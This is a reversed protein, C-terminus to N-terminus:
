EEKVVIISSPLKNHYALWFRYRFYKKSIEYRHELYESGDILSTYTFKDILGYILLEDTFDLPGSPPLPTLVYEKRTDKGDILEIAKDCIVETVKRRKYEDGDFDSLLAIASSVDLAFKYEHSPTPEETFLGSSDVIHTESFETILFSFRKSNFIGYIYEFEKNESNSFINEPQGKLKELELEAEVRKLREDKVSSAVTRELYSRWIETVVRPLLDSYNTDNWEPVQLSQLDARLSTRIKADNVYPLFAVNNDRLTQLIGADIEKSVVSSSLSFSTIYAIIADCTSIGNRFIEDLWSKGHRVEYKYQWPEIQCKKFLDDALKDIFASDKESYSLFVRPKNYQHDNM